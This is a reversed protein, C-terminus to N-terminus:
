HRLYVLLFFFFCKKVLSAKRSFQRTDWEFRDCRRNESEWARSSGSWYAKWVAIVKSLLVSNM